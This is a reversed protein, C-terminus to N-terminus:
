TFRAQLDRSRREADAVLGREGEVREALEALAKAAKEPSQVVQAALRENEQPSLDHMILIHSIICCLFHIATATRPSRLMQDSPQKNM